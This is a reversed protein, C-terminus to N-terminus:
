RHRTKQAVGGGGREGDGGGAGERGGRAGLGVASQDHEAVAQAVVAVEVGDGAPGVRERRGVVLTSERVPRDEGFQQAEVGAAVGGAGRDRAADVVGEAARAGIGGGARRSHAVLQEGIEAAAPGEAGVVQDADEAPGVVDELGERGGGAIRQGGLGGHLRHGGAGGAVDVEDDVAHGGGAGSGDQDGVQRAEADGRLERRGIRQDAGLARGQGVEGPGTEVGGQRRAQERDGGGVGAAVDDQHVQVLDAVRQRGIGPGEAQAVGAGGAEVLRRQRDAGIGVFVEVPVPNVRGRGPM